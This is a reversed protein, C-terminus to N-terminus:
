KATHGQHASATGAKDRMACEMKGGSTQKCCGQSTAMRAHDAMSHEMHTMDMTHQAHPNAAPAPQASQAAAVAAMATVLTIM